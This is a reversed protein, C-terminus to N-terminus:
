GKEENKLIEQKAQKVNVDTKTNETFKLLM